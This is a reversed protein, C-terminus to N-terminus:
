QIIRRLRIADRVNHNKGREYAVPISRDIIFFGRNRQAPSVENTTGPDFYGITIWVAYANSRTTVRDSLNLMTQYRSWAHRDTQRVRDNMADTHNDLFGGRRSAALPPDVVNAPDHRDPLKRFIDGLQTVANYTSPTAPPAPAATHFLAADWRPLWDDSGGPSYADDQSDMAGFVARWAGRSEGGPGEGDIITNMNIRGPERWSSLHESPTEDLGLNQLATTNAGGTPVTRYLNAFRSRVQVFELLNFPGPSPPTLPADFRGTVYRWVWQSMPPNPPTDTEWFGALHFFRQDSPIAPADISHRQTFHFPATVPVLSLEVANEFPRNPWFLSAYPRNWRTPKGGVLPRASAGSGGGGTLSVTLLGPDRYGSGGNTVEIAVVSGNDVIARPTLGGGGTVTVTPSSTYGSGGSLIRFGTIQGDLTHRPAPPLPRDPIAMATLDNPPVAVVPESLFANADRVDSVAARVRRSWIDSENSSGGYGGRETSLM